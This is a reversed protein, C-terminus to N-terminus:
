ISLFNKRSCTPTSLKGKNLPHVKMRGYAQHKDSFRKWAQLCWVLVLSQSKLASNIFKHFATSQNIERFPFLNLSCCCILTENLKRRQQLRIPNSGWVAPCRPTWRAELCLFLRLFRLLLLWFVFKFKESCLRTLSSSGGRWMAAAASALPASARSWSRSERVCFRLRKIRRRRSFSCSRILCVCM